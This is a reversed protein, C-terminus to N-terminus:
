LFASRHSRPLEVELAMRPACSEPLRGLGGVVGLCPPLCESVGLDLLEETCGRGGVVGRARPKTAGLGIFLERDVMESEGPM